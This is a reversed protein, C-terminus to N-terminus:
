LGPLLEEAKVERDILKLERLQRSLERWRGIEMHGIGNPTEILRRQAEGSAKFTQPDMSPNLEAMRRDTASADRLYQEWGKRFLERVRRVQDAQSKWVDGRTVLVTTYPNYGSDAVLFVKTKLKQQAALLPESTVFCQQSHRGDLAFNSIGGVYPVISVKAGQGHKAMLYQAYPLGKQLALTGESRFVDDLSKFGREAHVMIGQPNTQYVAMLALVDVGRARAMVVEDASAIAYDLKKTALMQITPTGSGGPAIELKIKAERDLGHVQAAYFGGFQPEPKWNLGLKVKTEAVQGQSEVVPHAASPSALALFAELLIMGVFIVGLFNMRHTWSRHLRISTMSSFLVSHHRQIQRYM